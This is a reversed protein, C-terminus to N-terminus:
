VPITFYFTAGQAPESEAWIRGGHREVIKKCIALGIGTGPYEEKTHLRQFVKFIREAYQPEFGIGNDRVAVVWERGEQRTSVHIRPPHDGHFKIANAILNQLLQGMHHPNVKLIPLPEHTIEAQKEQILPQIDNLMKKLIDNMDTSILRFDARGVRSLALLDNILDKMRMAGDAIYGLYKDARDDLHGQYRNALMESFNAMKRLPEQLDHSAVYAFEELEKNSRELDELTRRLKEEAQQRQTIDMSYIRLVKFPEAFYINQSFVTDKIWVERYFVKEQNERIATTIEELDEPILEGLKAEPGLKELSKLAAQNYFTIGGSLDIEIVPSPNMRPFSALRKIEDEAQKRETIDQTTGFGGLLQRASDFELEARERVWKVTGDVMLRHEIDYPEGKLAAMWGRDVYERDEPHVAGLFTEYTMPTGPTIGFIRHNEDSWTLENKQVNLRWSGTHAVAQARNLDERSERLAEEARKRATIVDFIAVFHEKQPSYVSISFWMDLAEVHTEFQEPIGTLSVRGYTELLQPDSERLGPIVESVRKGKVDTLGTLVEFAHNVDLYIFDVPRNDEFLMQCYAYGNLMNDFLHRYHEESQRLAQEARKRATIDTIFAYYYSPEGQEDQRLHVLLEVPVRTGDKRRYEKEYRVPQGTRQLEELIVAEKELWEPPTLDKVWDLAFLEEKSYGLLRPFATNCMGLRGDPFSTGFPQSSLEMLDALLAAQRQSERLEEQARVISRSSFFYIIANSLIAMGILILVIFSTKAQAAIIRTGSSEMLRKVDDTIFRVKIWLQSALLDRRETDIAGRSGEQLDFLQEILPGLELNNRRIQRILSEERSNSSSISELSKSLTGRVQGIQEMQRANSEQKLADDILINLAFAENIIESYGQYRAFDYSMERIISFAFYVIVASVALSAAISIWIKSKARM